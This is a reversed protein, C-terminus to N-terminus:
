GLYESHRGASYLHISRQASQAGAKRSWVVKVSHLPGQGAFNVERSGHHWLISLSKHYYSLVVVVVRRYLLLVM